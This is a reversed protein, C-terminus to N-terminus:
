ALALKSPLETLNKRRRRQTDIVRGVAVETVDTVTNAIKSFVVVHAGTNAANVANVFTKLAIAANDVSTVSAKGDTGVLGSFPLSFRAKSGRGRTLMSHLSMTWALQPPGDTSNATVVPAPYLYTHSDSSMLYRGTLPDIENFKVWTLSAGKAHKTNAETFFAQIAPGYAAPNDPLDADDHVMMGCSWTELGYLPGGWSLKYLNGSMAM